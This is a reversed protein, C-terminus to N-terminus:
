SSPVKGAVVISAHGSNHFDMGLAPAELAIVYRGERPFVIEVEYVGETVHFARARVQWNGQAGFCLVRVEDVDAIPRNSGSEHLLFRLRAPRGAVLEGEKWLGVFTPRTRGRPAKAEGALALDFCRAIKHDPLYVHVDHKGATGLRVRTHYEGSRSDEELRRHYVFIGVAPATHTRFSSMPAMMGEMYHYVTRDAPNAVIAGGHGQMVAMPALRELTPGNAPPSTGMPIEVVPLLPGQGLDSRKFVTVDSSGRNWVYGYQDSFAVHSPDAGTIGRQVIRMQGADIVAMTRRDALIALVFGEDPSLHISSVGTALPVGGMHAGQEPRLAALADPHLAVLGGTTGNSLFLTKRSPAFALRLRGPALTVVNILELSDLDVVRVQGSQSASLFARRGEEDFAVDVESGETSLVAAVRQKDADYATVIGDSGVIWVRRGGPEGVLHVPESTLEVTRSLSATRIDAVALIGTGPRGATAPGAKGPGRQWPGQHHGRMGVFLVGRHPDMHAATPRGQLPILSQLNASNLNVSPNIVSVTGDANVSLIYMKNLAIQADMRVGGSLLGATVHSCGKEDLADAGDARPGIWVFPDLGLLPRGTGEDTIRLRLDVQPTSNGAGSDAESTAAWTFEVKPVTKQTGHRPHLGPPGHHHQGQAPLWSALLLLVAPPLLRNLALGM